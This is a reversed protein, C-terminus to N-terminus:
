NSSINREIEADIEEEHDREDIEYLELCINLFRCQKEICKNCAAFHFAPLTDEERINKCYESGELTFKLEVWLESYPNGCTAKESKIIKEKFRDIVKPANYNYICHMCNDPRYHMCAKKLSCQISRM